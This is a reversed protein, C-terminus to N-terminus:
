SVIRPHLVFPSCDYVTAIVRITNTAATLKAEAINCSPCGSRAAKLEVIEATLAAITTHLGAITRKTNTRHRTASCMNHYRRRQKVLIMVITKPYGLPNRLSLLPPVHRGHVQAADKASLQGLPLM